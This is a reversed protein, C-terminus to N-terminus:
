ELGCGFRCRLTEFIRSVKRKHDVPGNFKVKSALKKQNEKVNTFFLESIWASSLIVIIPATM